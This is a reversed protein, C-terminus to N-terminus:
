DVNDTQRETNTIIIGKYVMNFKVLSFQTRIMDYRNRQEIGSTDLCQRVIKDTNSVHCHLIM